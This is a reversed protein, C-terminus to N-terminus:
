LAERLLQVDRGLTSGLEHEGVASRDLEDRGGAAGSRSQLHDPTGMIDRHVKGTWGAVEESESRFGCRAGLM